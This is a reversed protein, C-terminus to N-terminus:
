RYHNQYRCTLNMACHDCTTGSQTLNEGTGIVLSITKNPLMQFNDNLHVGIQSADILNFIEKQGQDLNWGVMGPSLPISINSGTTMALAEEKNCAQTALSEVSASGFSDLAWGYLPDTKMLEASLNEIVEGVTCVMIIVSDASALHQTILSGSLTHQHNDISSDLVLKQHRLEHITFQRQIVAPDLLPSGEKVAWNAIEYLNPKRDKIIDPNSGQARLVHEATLKLEWDRSIEMTIGM